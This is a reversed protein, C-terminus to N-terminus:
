PSQSDLPRPVSIPLPIDCFTLSGLGTALACTGSVTWAPVELRRELHPDPLKVGDFHLKEGESWFRGVVIQVGRESPTLHLSDPYPDPDSDNVRIEIASRFRHSVELEERSPCGVISLTKM